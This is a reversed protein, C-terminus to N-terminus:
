QSLSLVQFGAMCADTSVPASAVLTAAGSEPVDVWWAGDGEYLCSVWMTESVDVAVGYAVGPVAARDFELRFAGDEIRATTWAQVVGTTVEVLAGLAAGGDDAAFGSGQVSVTTGFGPLLECPATDDGATIAFGLRREAIVTETRGGIEEASCAGPGDALRWAIAYGLGHRAV